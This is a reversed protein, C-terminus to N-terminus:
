PNKKPIFKMSISNICYRMGTTEKPGDDFVHGLHGDCQACTVEIRQMGFSYDKHYKVAGEKAQDFSPWGCHSDFKTDSDILVNGCAACVYYGEEFFNNYEGTFPRETGKERLIHYQEPSLKDKWYKNDKMTNTNQSQTTHCSLMIFFSSIWVLHLSKKLLKKM